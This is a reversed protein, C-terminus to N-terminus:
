EIDSGASEARKQVMEKKSIKETKSPLLEPRINPLVGGQSITVSSLLQHLEEDNRVALQLHRPTIRLKRHDRAANGALELIEAVLYELSGALFVSGGASIRDAYNGDRLYRHIRAVPFVIGARNSRSVGKERNLKVRSKGKGRASM